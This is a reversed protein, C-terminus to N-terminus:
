LVARGRRRLTITEDQGVTVIRTGDGLYRAVSVPKAHDSLRILNRGDVNEVIVADNSDAFVLRAEM